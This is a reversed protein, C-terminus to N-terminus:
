GTNNRVVSASVVARIKKRIGTLRPGCYVRNEFRALRSRLAGAERRPLSHCFDELVAPLSYKGRHWNLKAVEFDGERRAM